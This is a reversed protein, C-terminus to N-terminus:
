KKRKEPAAKVAREVKPAIPVVQEAKIRRIAEADDMEVEEDVRLDTDPGAINHLIRVLM